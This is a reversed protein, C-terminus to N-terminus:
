FFEKSRFGKLFALFLIIMFVLIVNNEDFYVGQLVIKLKHM